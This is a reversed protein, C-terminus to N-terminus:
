VLNISNSRVQNGGSEEFAGKVIKIKESNFFSHNKESDRIKEAVVLLEKKM